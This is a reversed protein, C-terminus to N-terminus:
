MAPEPWAGFYQSGFSTRKRLALFRPIPFTM